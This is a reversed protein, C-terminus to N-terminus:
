SGSYVGSDRVMSSSAGTSYNPYEYVGGLLEFPQTKFMKLHTQTRVREITVKLSTKMGPSVLIGMFWTPADYHMCITM